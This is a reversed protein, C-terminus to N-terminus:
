CTGLKSKWDTGFKVPVSNDQVWFIDHDNGRWPLTRKSLSILIMCRQIKRFLSIMIGKISWYFFWNVGYHIFSSVSVYTSNISACNFCVYLMSFYWYWLLYFMHNNCFHVCVDYTCDCDGNFLMWWDISLDILWDILNMSSGFNYHEIVFQNFNFVKCM